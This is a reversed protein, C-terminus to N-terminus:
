IFDTLSALTTIGNPFMWGMLGGKLNKVKEFRLDAMIGAASSSRDASRFYLLFTNARPLNKIQKQFNESLDINRVGFISGSQFEGQSRVEIIVHNPLNM